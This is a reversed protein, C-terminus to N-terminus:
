DPLYHGDSLFVKSPMTSLVPRGSKPSPLVFDRALGRVFAFDDDTLARSKVPHM